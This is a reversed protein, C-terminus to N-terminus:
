NQLLTGKMTHTAVLSVIMAIFVNIRKKKKYINNLNKSILVMIRIKM